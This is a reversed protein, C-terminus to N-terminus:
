PETQLTAEVYQTPDPPQIQAGLSYFKYGATVLAQQTATPVATCTSSSTIYLPGTFQAGAQYTTTTPPCNTAVTVSIVNPAPACQGASVGLPQTCSADAFYGETYITVTNPDPGPLCRTKGDSAKSFFCQVNLQSDFMGAVQQSGDSGAYYQVKLRTGSQPPGAHANGVPDTLADLIGGSGDGTGGSGSGGDNGAVSQQGSGASCAAMVVYIAISGALM